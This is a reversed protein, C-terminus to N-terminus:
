GASTNPNLPDEVYTAATPKFASEAAFRSTPGLSVPRFTAVETVPALMYATAPVGIVAGIMAGLGVSSLGLFQGRTVASGPAQPSTYAAAHDQSGGTGDAVDDEKM